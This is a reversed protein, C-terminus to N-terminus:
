LHGLAQEIRAEEDRAAMVVSCRIRNPKQAASGDLAALTELSPLRQVWRLHWLAACTMGLFLAATAWFILTLWMIQNSSLSPNAAVHLRSASADRRRRLTNGVVSRTPSLWIRKRRAAAPGVSPVHKADCRAHSIRPKPPARGAGRDCRGSNRLAFTNAYG